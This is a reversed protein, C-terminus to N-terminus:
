TRPVRRKKRKKAKRSVPPSGGSSVSPLRLRCDLVVSRISRGYNSLQRAQDALRIRLDVLAQEDEQRGKGFFGVLYIGCRLPLAALYRDALQTRMATEVERHWDGKAEIAVQAHERGSGSPAPATILVDPEQGEDLGLRQRVEVERVIVTETLGDRLKDTVFIKLAAEDKPTAPDPPRPDNWLFSVLAPTGHLSAQIRAFEEVVIELLQESTDARRNTARDLLARLDVPAIPTWTDKLVADAARDILYGINRSPQEREVLRLADLSEPRGSAALARLLGERFDAVSERKSVAHAGKIDPDEAHPYEKSLWLYLEAINSAPLAQVLEKPQAGHAREALREIIERVVASAADSSLALSGLAAVPRHLLLAVGAGIAQQAEPSDVDCERGRTLLDHASSEAATADHKALEELLEEVSASSLGPQQLVEVVLASLNGNWLSGLARFVFVSKHHANEAVALAKVAELFAEEASRHAVRLLEDNPNPGAVHHSGGELVAGVWSRWCDASLAAFADPSGSAMLVLALYGAHATNFPRSTTEIWEAREDTLSTLFREAAKLTRSRAPEPASALWTSYTRSAWLNAHRGSVEVAIAALVSPFFEIGNVEVHDLLELVSPHREEEAPRQKPRALSQYREEEAKLERARDSDLYVTELINSFRTRIKPHTSAALLTEVVEVTTESWVIHQVVLAWREFEEDGAAGIAVNLVWTLDRGTLLSPRSHVADIPRVPHSASTDCLEAVVAHRTEDSLGAAGEAHEKSQPILEEYERLRDRLVPVLAGRVRPDAAERWALGLLANTLEEFAYAHRSALGTARLWELARPLLASSLRKPVEETLFRDYAGIRHDNYPRELLDFPDGDVHSPWLAELAYARLDQDDEDSSPVLLAHLKAAATPVGLHVVVGAAVHRVQM